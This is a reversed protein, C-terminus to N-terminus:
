TAEREVFEWRYGYASKRRGACVHSLYSSTAKSIGSDKLWIVAHVLSEFVKGTDVIRVPKARAAFSAAAAQARAEPSRANMAASLKARHDDSLRKGMRAASLKARTEATVVRNKLRESRRRREDPSQGFLTSKASLIAKTEASLPKGRRAQASRAIAETTPSKGKRIASAKERWEPTDRIARMAARAAASMKRGTLAASIKHCTAEPRKMGLHSGATKCINYGPVLCDIALQEYMLLDPKGCILLIEFRLGSEGHKKFASQLHPNHHSGVRLHHLHVHWRRRINVASGVYQKGSASTIAYIGAVNNM